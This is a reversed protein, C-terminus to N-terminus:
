METTLTKNTLWMFIITVAINNSEDKHIFADKSDVIISICATDIVILLLQTLIM